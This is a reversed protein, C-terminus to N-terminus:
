GAKVTLPVDKCHCCRDEDLEVVLPAPALPEARLAVKVTSFRGRPCWMSAKVTGVGGELEDDPSLAVDGVIGKVPASM